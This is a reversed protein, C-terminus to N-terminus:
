EYYFKIVQEDTDVTARVGFPVICRPTAHGTNINYVISLDYNSLEELLIEKYDEYYIEDQPKGVILGSIVGFIGYENLAGIM